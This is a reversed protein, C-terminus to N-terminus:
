LSERLESVKAISDAGYGGLMFTLRGVGAGVDVHGRGRLFTKFWKLFKPKPNFFVQYPLVMNVATLLRVAAM